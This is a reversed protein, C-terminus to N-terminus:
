FGQYETISVLRDMIFYAIVYLSALIVVGIVAHKMTKQADEVQEANGHATMWNYGAWIIRILLLMGLFPIILLIGGIYKALTIATDENLDTKYLGSGEEGATENLNKMWDGIGALAINHNIFIAIILIFIILNIKKLNKM